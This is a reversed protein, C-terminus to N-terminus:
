RKELRTTWLQKRFQSNRWLSSNCRASSTQHKQCSGIQTKVKSIDISFNKLLCFLLFFYKEDFKPKGVFYSLILNIFINGIAENVDKNNFTQLIKDMFDNIERFNMKKIGNIFVIMDKDGKTPRPKLSSNSYNKLFKYFFDFFKDISDTKKIIM